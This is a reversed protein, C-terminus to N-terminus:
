DSPLVLNVVSRHVGGFGWGPPDTRENHDETARPAREKRDKRRAGDGERCRPVERRQCGAAVGGAVAGKLGM